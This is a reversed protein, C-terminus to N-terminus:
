GQKKEEPPTAPPTAPASPPAEQPEASKKNVLHITYGRKYMNASPKARGRFVVEVEHEEM